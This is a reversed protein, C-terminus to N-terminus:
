WEVPNSSLKAPLSLVLDDARIINRQGSLMDGCRDPTPVPITDGNTDLVLDGNSDTKLCSCTFLSPNNDVDFCTPLDALAPFAFLLLLVSFISSAALRVSIPNSRSM